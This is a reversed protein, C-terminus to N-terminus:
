KMRVFVVEFQQRLGAHYYIGTLQDKGEEYALDYTSGPYKVDRLEVFVKNTGSNWSAEARAVHIPRPNLYAADLKGGDEVSKIELVYGGDPRLWRGKLKAFGLNPNAALAPENTRNIAIAPAAAPPADTPRGKVWWFGGAAVIVVVLVVAAPRPFRRGAAAAAPPSVNQKTKRPKSM